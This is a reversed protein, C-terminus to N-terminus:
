GYNHLANGRYLADWDDDSQCGQERTNFEETFDVKVNPPPFVTAYSACHCRNGAQGVTSESSWVTTVLYLVWVVMTCLERRSQGEIWERSQPYAARECPGCATRFIAIMGGDIPLRPLTLLIDDNARAPAAKM